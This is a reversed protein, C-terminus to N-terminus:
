CACLRSLAVPFWVFQHVNRVKDQQQWVLVEERVRRMLDLNEVDDPRIGIDPLTDGGWDAIAIARANAEEEFSLYTIGRTFAADFQFNHGLLFDVALPQSDCPNEPPCILRM